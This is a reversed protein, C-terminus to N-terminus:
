IPEFTGLYVRAWQCEGAVLTALEIVQMSGFHIFCARAGWLLSTNCRQYMYVFHQRPSSGKVVFEKVFGKLETM